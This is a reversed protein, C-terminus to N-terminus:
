SGNFDRYATQMDSIKDPLKILTLAITKVILKVVNVVLSLIIGSKKMTEDFLYM